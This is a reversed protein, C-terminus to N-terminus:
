YFCVYQVSAASGLKVPVRLTIRNANNVPFMDTERGPFLPAFLTGDFGYYVEVDSEEVPGAVNITFQEDDTANWKCLKVFRCEIDPLRVTEGAPVVMVGCDTKGKYDDFYGNM